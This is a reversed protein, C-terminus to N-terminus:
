MGIYGALLSINFKNSPNVIVHIRTGFSVALSFFDLIYVAVDHADEGFLCRRSGGLRTWYFICSYMIM